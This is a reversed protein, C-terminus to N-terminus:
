LPLRVTWRGGVRGVPWACDDDNPTRRPASEVSLFVIPSRGAVYLSGAVVIAEEEGTRETALEAAWPGRPSGTMIATSRKRVPLHADTSLDEFPLM